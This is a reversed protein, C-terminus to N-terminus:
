CKVLLKQASIKAGFNKLALSHSSFLQAFCKGKFFAGTFHQHFQCRSCQYAVTEFIIIQQDIYTGKRIRKM